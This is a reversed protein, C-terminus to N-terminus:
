EVYDFETDQLRVTDGDKMGQKKLEKIVGGRVLAKQMYTVSDFQDLLVNRSLEDIMGGFVNWVGEDDRVIEFESTDPPAYEYPEYEMKALPPLKALKAAIESKLKDIGQRTIGSIVLVKKRGLKSRFDNIAKDDQLLDSKNLVIIQKLKALRPSYSKLENNITVYDDYPDRGEFGSIDIVHVILRVREIHRLFDHGLGQGESAGEILGPIDALVFSRDYYPVVGLNPNITTFHYGAIKPRAASLVSLLTSKGANPYGVLGADAITKLELIVAREQTKQGAQSFRPARRRSSKFRANGKGGSGGRLVVIRADPDFMDAIIGGTEEDRIITGRPVKIVLDKGSKGHQFKSDGREGNDARYRKAYDFAGLTDTHPTVEFIIDGGKGGDGGNPGGLPSHKEIYFSVIGNGGDGSKIFIKTKDVFM